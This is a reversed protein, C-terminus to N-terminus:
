RLARGPWLAALLDLQPWVLPPLGRPISGVTAVGVDPLGLLASAAIGVAVAILPAPARPAFRELGFILALM